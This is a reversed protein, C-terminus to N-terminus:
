AARCAAPPRKWLPPPPGVGGVYNEGWEWVTGQCECDEKGVCLGGLSVFGGWLGGMFEVGEFWGLSGGVWM